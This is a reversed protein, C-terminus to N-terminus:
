AARRVDVPDGREWGRRNLWMEVEPTIANPPPEQPWQELPLQYHERCVPNSWHLLRKMHGHGCYTEGGCVYCVQGTRGIDLAYATMDSRARELKWRLGGNVIEKELWAEVVNLEKAAAEGILKHGPQNPTWGNASEYLIDVTRGDEFKAIELGHRYEFEKVKWATQLIEQGGRFWPHHWTHANVKTEAFRLHVYGKNCRYCPGCEEGYTNKYITTGDCYRCKKVVGVPRAVLDGSCALLMAAFTKYTYVARWGCGNGRAHSNLRDISALIEAPIM